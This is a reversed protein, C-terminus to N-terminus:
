MLISASHQAQFRSPLNTKTKRSLHIAMSGSALVCNGGNRALRNTM